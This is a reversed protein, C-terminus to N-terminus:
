DLWAAPFGMLWLSHRWNLVPGGRSTRGARQTAATSSETTTGHAQRPLQDTRTRLSGDPNTGTEAVLSAAHALTLGFGNGNGTREKCEARRRLMREPDSDGFEQASPTPWGFCGKVSNRRASGRLACIPPGLPMDWHKWILGYEPSGNVDMAARLRSELSSQLVASPSSADFSLGSTGKMTQRAGSAASITKVGSRSALAARRARRVARRLSRLVRAPVQGSQGQGDRSTSRM